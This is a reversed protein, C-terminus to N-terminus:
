GHDSNLSRHPHLCTEIMDRRWTYPIYQIEEDHLEECRRVPETFIVRVRRSLVVEISLSMVRIM